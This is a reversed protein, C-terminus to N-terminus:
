PSAYGPGRTETFGPCFDHFLQLEDQGGASRQRAASREEQAGIGVRHQYDILGLALDDIADVQVRAQGGAQAKRLVAFLDVDGGVIVAADFHDVHRSVLDDIMEHEVGGGFKIAEVAPC